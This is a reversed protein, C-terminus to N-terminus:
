PVVNGYIDVETLPKDIFESLQPQIIDRNGVILVTLKDPNVNDNAAKLVATLSANDIRSIYTDFYDDPLNYLYLLSLNKALHAYTEFLSPFRKIISSKAFEFEEQTIAARIDKLEKIIEAVAEGTNQSHVATEVEFCGHEKNYNFSSNAGYTFGRKERLNLNIRSTFQGGLVSNMIMTEFYDPAKRGKGVHGIRIESQAADDKHIFYFRNVDNRQPFVGYTSTGYNNWGSFHKELVGKIEPQHVDGVVIFLSNDVTFYTKYFNKIDEINISSVTREFGFTPSAYPTNKFILNDFATSAIYSPEDKLQIINSLCKKKERGFDSENFRPALIIKSLLEISRNLNEKLTLLSIFISDHDTSISLITGMMEFENDLELASLEGAGEDILMATLNALGKKDSPDFKSGASIILGLQVIPLTNKRIFSVQLKNGLIFREIAPLKFAIKEKPEPLISRDISTV